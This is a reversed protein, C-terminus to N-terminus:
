RSVELAALRVSIEVRYPEPEAGPDMVERLAPPLSRIARDARARIEDLSPLPAARGGRVVDQLLPRGPQDEGALGILDDTMTGGQDRRWVQKAGPRTSKGTSLKAKAGQEDDVLKYVLGLSPADGVVGLQTGVGFASVPVGAGVLDRIRYEDLDGSAFIDTERLGSEDLIARVRPALESLDGSDLRVGRLEHGRERLWLGTRAALRAGEITDYTDILLVCSTPFDQAYARFAEEESPFSMVYSHAMTGYVPIGYARGALINSTGACGALWASRAVHLAADAGHCRRASFDVVPRGRAAELIRAAKTAAATAHMYANIVFTEVIQAEILPATVQLIPEGAFAVEGEPLARVDGTFRLSGLFALFDDGFLELSRLYEIGEPTFGFGELYALAHELGAVLMFARGAPLSRAFLEFTARGNMGRAHYSAAMTVEYLDVFLAADGPDPWQLRM